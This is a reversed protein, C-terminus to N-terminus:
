IYGIFSVVADPDGVDNIYIINPAIRSFESGRDGHLWLGVDPLQYFKLMFQTYAITLTCGV